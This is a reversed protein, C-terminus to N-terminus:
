NRLRSRFAFEIVKLLEVVILAADVNVSVVPLPVMVPPVNLRALLLTM